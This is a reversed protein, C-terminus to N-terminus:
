VILSGQEVIQDPIQICGRFPQEQKTPLRPRKELVLIDKKKNGIHTSFNM